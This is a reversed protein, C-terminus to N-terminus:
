KEWSLFRVAPKEESDGSEDENSEEEKMEPEEPQANTRKLLYYFDDLVVEFNGEETEADVQETRADMVSKDHDRIENQPFKYYRKKYV